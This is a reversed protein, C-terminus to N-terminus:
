SGTTSGTGRSRCPSKSELCEADGAEQWGLEGDNTRDFLRRVLTVIRQERM